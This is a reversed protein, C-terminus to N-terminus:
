GFIISKNNQIAYKMMKKWTEYSEKFWEYNRKDSKDFKDPDVRDFSKLILECESPSFEGDCDSHYFFLKMGVNYPRDYEDLIKWMKEDLENPEGMQLLGLFGLKCFNTNKDFLFAYKQEYLKGLEENWGRLIETRFKTFGAYQCSFSDDCGEVYVDLVM